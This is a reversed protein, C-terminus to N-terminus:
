FNTLFEHNLLEEFSPREAPNFILVFQLFQFLPLDSEERMLNMLLDQESNGERNNLFNFDLNCRRGRRSMEMLEDPVTANMRSVMLEFQSQQREAQTVGLRAIFLVRGIYLEGMLCGMSWVDSKENHPIGMFIEPARLNQPQVVTHRRKIGPIWHSSSNGYDIIKIRLDSMTIIPQALNADVEYKVTNMFTVNAAKLDLHYINLNELHLLGEGIQRGIQKIDDTSFSPLRFNGVDGRARMMIDKISPGCAETIIVEDTYGQPPNMLEGALHLSLLNTHPNQVIKHYAELEHRSSYRNARQALVKAAYQYGNRDRVRYVVSFGGRGFLGRVNYQEGNRLELSAPHFRLDVNVPEYAYGPSQQDNQQM